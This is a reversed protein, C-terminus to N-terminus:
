CIGSPVEVDVDKGLGELKVDVSFAQLQSALMKDPELGAKRVAELLDRGLVSWGVFRDGKLAFTVRLRVDDADTGSQKLAQTWSVGFVGVAATLQVTGQAEDAPSRTKAGRATLLAQVQSPLVVNGAPTWPPTNPTGLATWCGANRGTTERFFFTREFVRYDVVTRPGERPTTSTRMSGEYTSFRWAGDSDVYDTDGGGILLTSTFRGSDADVLKQVAREVVVTDQIGRKPGTDTDLLQTPQVEPVGCSSLAVAAVLALLARTRM